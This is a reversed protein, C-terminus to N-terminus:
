WQSQATTRKQTIEQTSLEPGPNILKFLVSRFQGLQATHEAAITVASDKGAVEFQEIACMVCRATELIRGAEFADLSEVLLASVGKIAGPLRQDRFVYVATEYQRVAVSSPKLAHSGAATQQGYSDRIPGLLQEVTTILSRADM